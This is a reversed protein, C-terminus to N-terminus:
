AALPLEIYDVGQGAPGMLYVAVAFDIARAADTRFPGFGESAVVGNAHIIRVMVTTGSPVLSPDV